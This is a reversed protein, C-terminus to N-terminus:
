NGDDQGGGKTRHELIDGIIAAIEVASDRSSASSRSVCCAEQLAKSQLVLLTKQDYKGLDSRVGPIGHTRRLTGLRRFLYEWGDTSNDSM